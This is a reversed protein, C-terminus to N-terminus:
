KKLYMILKSLLAVSKVMKLKETIFLIHATRPFLKSFQVLLQKSFKSPLLPGIPSSLGCYPDLGSFNNEFMVAALTAFNNARVNM